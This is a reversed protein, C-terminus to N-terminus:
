VPVVFYYHLKGAKLRGFALFIEKESFVALQRSEDKVPIEAMSIQVGNKILKEQDENVYIFEINDLEALFSHEPILDKDPDFLGADCADDINFSGIDTRTLSKLYARSGCALGIDRALARIYTGKSCSARIDAYPPDYEDLELSYIEIDREPMEPEEGSLAMKYSRKGNIHVASFKPPRQKIKGKFNELACLLTERQPIGATAIVEGEPDLTETEKGFEITGAYKKGMCSFYNNLKTCPGVLALLLGDAFRDLTGTHGVLSPKVAKKIPQLVNHSTIGSPKKLLVLGSYRKNTM